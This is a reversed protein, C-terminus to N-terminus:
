TQARSSASRGGCSQAPATVSLRRQCGRRRPRNRSRSRKGEAAAGGRGGLEGRDGVGGGGLGRVVVCGAGSSRAASGWSMEGETESARGPAERAEEVASRM